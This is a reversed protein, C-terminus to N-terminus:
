ALKAFVTVYNHGYAKACKPCYAYSFYVKEVERGRGKVWRVTDSAWKGMDRYPGDYVRSLSTGVLEVLELGPVERAVELYLESGWASREDSLMLPRQVSAGAAEIRECARAIKKTMGLPVHLVSPISLKVFKRGTLVTEREHFVSPEFPPCCGTALAPPAPLTAATSM